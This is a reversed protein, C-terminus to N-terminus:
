KAQVNIKQKEQEYIGNKNKYIYLSFTRGCRFARDIVVVIVVVNIVVFFHALFCLVCMIHVCDITDARTTPMKVKGACLFFCNKNQNQSNKM